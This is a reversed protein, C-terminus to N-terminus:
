RRGKTRGLLRLRKELREARKADEGDLVAEEAVELGALADVHDRLERPSMQRVQELSLGRRKM